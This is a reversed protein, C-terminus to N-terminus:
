PRDDDPNAPACGNAKLRLRDAVESWFHIAREDNLGQGDSLCLKVTAIARPGLRRWLQEAAAV